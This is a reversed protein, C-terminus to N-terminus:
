NNNNVSNDQFNANCNTLASINLGVAILGQTNKGENCASYNTDQNYIDKHGASAAGAGFGMLAATVMTVAAAKGLFRM